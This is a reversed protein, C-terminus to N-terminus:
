KKTGVIQLLFLDCSFPGADAVRSRKMRTYVVNKLLIVRYQWGCGWAPSGFCSRSSPSLVPLCRLCGGLTVALSQECTRETASINEGSTILQDELDDRM